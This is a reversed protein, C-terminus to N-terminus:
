AVLVSFCTCIEMSHLLIDLSCNCYDLLCNSLDMELYFTKSVFWGSFKTSQLLLRHVLNSQNFCFGTSEYHEQLLQFHKQRM